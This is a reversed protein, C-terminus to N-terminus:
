WGAREGREAWRGGAVVVRPREAEVQRCNLRLGPGPRTRVVELVSVDRRGEGRMLGPEGRGKRGVM